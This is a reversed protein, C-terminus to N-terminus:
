RRRGGISLWHWWVCLDVNDPRMVSLHDLAAGKPYAHTKAISANSRGTHINRISPMMMQEDVGLQRRQILWNGVVAIMQMETCALCLSPKFQRWTSM